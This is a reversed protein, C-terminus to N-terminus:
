DFDINGYSAATCASTTCAIWVLNAYQRVTVNALCQYVSGNATATATSCGVNEGSPGVVKVYRTAGAANRVKVRNGGLERQSTVVFPGGASPGTRRNACGFYPYSTWPNGGAFGANSFGRATACFRGEDAIAYQISTYLQAALANFQLVDTNTDSTKDVYFSEINHRFGSGSNWAYTVQTSSDPNTTTLNATDLPGYIRVNATGSAGPPSVDDTWCCHFPYTTLNTPASNRLANNWDTASQATVGDLADTFSGVRWETMAGQVNSVIEGALYGDEAPPWLAGAHGHTKHNALVPHSQQAIILVSTLVLLPAIWRLLLSLHRM